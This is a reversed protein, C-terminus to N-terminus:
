RATPASFNGPRQRSSRAVKINGSEAYQPRQSSWLEQPSMSSMRQVVSGRKTIIVVRSSSITPAIQEITAPGLHTVPAAAQAAPLSTLTHLLFGIVGFVVGMSTLQRRQETKSEHTSEVTPPLRRLYRAQWTSWDEHPDVPADVVPLADVSSMLDPETHTSFAEKIDTLITGDHACEKFDNKFLRGCNQCYKM